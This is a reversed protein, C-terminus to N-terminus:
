LFEKKPCKMMKWLWRKQFHGQLNKQLWLMESYVYDITM